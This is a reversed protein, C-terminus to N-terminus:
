TTEAIVCTIVTGSMENGSDNEISFALDYTVTNNSYAINTIEVDFNKLLHDDNGHTGNIGQLVVTADLVVNSFSVSGNVTGNGSFSHTNSTFQLAM